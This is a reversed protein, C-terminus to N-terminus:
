AAESRARLGKLTCPRKPDFNSTASKDPLHWKAFLRANDEMGAASDASRRADDIEDHDIFCGCGPVISLGANWAKLSLDPDAACVFFREDFYGLKEFTERRGVPFNAYLTGRVHCLRYSDFNHQAEYAINRMSHWRHFMAVFGVSPGQSDLHSIALDFASPLPRADDNLWTLNRGTAAKFGQNAARVFGQRRPERIVTLRDGLWQKADALVNQTNDTSAGDVVIIEHSCQTNRDIVSLANTLLSARNCTPLVISLEVM